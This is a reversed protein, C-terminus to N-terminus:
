DKLPKKRRRAVEKAVKALGKPRKWCRGGRGGEEELLPNYCAMLRKGPYDPSAIEALNKEEVFVTQLAGQKVLSRIAREEPRHDLGM